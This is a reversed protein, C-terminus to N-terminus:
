NQKVALVYLQLYTINILYTGHKKCDDHKKSIIRVWNDCGKCEIFEVCFETERKTLM